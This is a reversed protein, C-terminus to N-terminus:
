RVGGMGVLYRRVALNQVARGLPGALRTLLTGPVADITVSASVAGADDMRVVFSEEGCEPHGPLTGYAFGFMGPSDVVAVIRNPAVVEIPGWSLIVLVTTGVDVPAEPPHIRAGFAAHPAWRHLRDCGTRFAPEGSGLHGTSRRLQGGPRPDTRLSSGVHSYTLDAAAASRHLSELEDTTRRGLHLM